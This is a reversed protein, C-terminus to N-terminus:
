FGTPQYAYSIEYSQKKWEPLMDGIGLDIRQPTPECIYYKRGEYLIPKGKGQKLEVAVTVHEPYALIIMPLNYIEKVLCFFLAARDDCDSQNYLLTQEPILRKEGGFQMKDTQFAFAWRTFHMLYDIGEQQSKGKLAQMLPPILSTYTEASLPIHLYAAYDLTPYNNLLRNMEPNVRISLDLSQANYAFRIKKEEYQTQPLLPLHNIQYSFSKAGSQNQIWIDEFYTQNFDIASYDHYNLCVYTKGHVNRSPINYVVDDSQVYLLLHQDSRRLLTQYGMNSLLWWKMMTYREYDSAKPSLQQATRRILQYTFWDNLKRLDSEQRLRSPLDDWTATNQQFTLIDAKTYHTKGSASWSVQPLNLSEGCFEVRMTQGSVPYAIIWIVYLVFLRKM